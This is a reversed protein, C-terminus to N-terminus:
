VFFRRGFDSDVYFVSCSLSQQFNKVRTLTKTILPPWLQHCHDVFALTVISIDTTSTMTNVYPHRPQPNVCPLRNNILEQPAHPFQLHMAVVQRSCSLTHEVFMFKLHHMQAQILKKKQTTESQTKIPTSLNIVEHSYNSSKISSYVPDSLTTTPNSSLSKRKVTAVLFAIAAFSRQLIDNPWLLLESVM